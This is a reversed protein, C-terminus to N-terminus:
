PSYPLFRTRVAVNMYRVTGSKEKSFGIRELERGLKTQTVPKGRQFTAQWWKQYAEYMLAASVTEGDAGELADKAFQAAPSAESLGESTQERIKAPVTLPAKGTWHRIIENLFGPTEAKLEDKFSERLQSRDIEFDWSIEVYRREMGGDASWSPRNNTDMQFLIKPSFTVAEKGMARGQLQGGGTIKKLMGLNYAAGEEPEDCFVLRAGRMAALESRYVERANKTGKLIVEVPLETAYDGAVATLLGAITSKGNGGAEGRNVVFKEMGMGSLGRAWMQLQFRRVEEDPQYDLFAKAITPAKADPDYHCAAKTNMDSPRTARVDTTGDPRLEITYGNSCPLLWAGGDLPPADFASVPTAIGAAGRAIKMAQNQQSGGSFGSLEACQERSLAAKSDDLLGRTYDKIATVLEALVDPEADPVWKAGNFHLWGLEKCWRFQGRLRPILLDALKVAGFTQVDGADVCVCGPVNCPASPTCEIM